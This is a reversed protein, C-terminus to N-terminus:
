VDPVDAVEKLGRWRAIADTLDNATPEEHWSALDPDSARPWPSPADIAVRSPLTVAEGLTTLPWGRCGLIVNQSSQV